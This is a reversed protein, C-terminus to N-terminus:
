PWSFSGASCVAFFPQHPLLFAGLAHYEPLHSFTSRPPPRVVPWQQQPTVIISILSLGEDPWQHGQHSRAPNSAALLLNILTSEASSLFLLIPFQFDLCGTLSFSPSFLFPIFPSICDLFSKKQFSPSHAKKKHQNFHNLSLSSNSTFHEYLPCSPQPELMQPSHSALVPGPSNMWVSLPSTCLGLFAPLYSPLPKHSNDESDKQRRPSVPCFTILQSHPDSIYCTQAPLLLFLM